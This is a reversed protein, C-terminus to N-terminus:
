ARQGKAISLLESVHHLMYTPNYTALFAEGKISWAVAATDVGARQGGVIDHFNDGIMLADEKNAGIRQLAIQVPEPDPKTFTVDELGVITDFLTECEMLHLGREIMERRKTSVIALKYGDKKLQRLTEVVGDFPAVMQDHRELNWKRYSATLTETLSPDIGNFTEFLPPGLFPLVAERNYKGPFTEGLVHLFTEIILENTNLLTGDLDFLLAKYNKM